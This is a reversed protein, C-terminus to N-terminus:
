AATRGYRTLIRWRTTKALRLAKYTGRRVRMVRGREVEHGLADALVKRPESGLVRWGSAELAGLVEAVAVPRGARVLMALAAHRLDHGRLERSRTDSTLVM